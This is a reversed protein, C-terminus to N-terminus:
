VHLQMSDDRVKLDPDREFIHSTGWFKLLSPGIYHGKFINVSKLKQYIFYILFVFKPGSFLHGWNKWAQPGFPGQFKQSMKVGTQYASYVVSWMAKQKVIKPFNPTIKNEKIEYDNSCLLFAVATHLNNDINMKAM